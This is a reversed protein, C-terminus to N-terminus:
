RKQETNNPLATEISVPQVLRIGTSSEVELNYSGPPVQQFDAEVRILTKGEQLHAQASKSWFAHGGATLRVNYSREESAFPLTLTLYLPSRPVRVRQHSETTSPESGRVPSLASLNVSFPLYAVAPNVPQVPNPARHTELPSPNPVRLRNLLLSAGIAIFLACALVTGVLLPHTRSWESIHEWSLREKAAMQSKLLALLESYRRFCPSCVALHETVVAESETPKFALSRLSDDPPCGQRDPNPFAESLYSRAFDLLERNKKELTARDKIRMRM